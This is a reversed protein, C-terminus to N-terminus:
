KQREIDTRLTLGIYQGRELQGSLYHRGDKCLFYLGDDDFVEVIEGSGICTFGADTVLHTGERVENQRAYTM